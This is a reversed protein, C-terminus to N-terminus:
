GPVFLNKHPCFLNEASKPLFIRNKFCHSGKNHTKQAMVDREQRRQLTTCGCSCVLAELSQLAELVPVFGSVIGTAV